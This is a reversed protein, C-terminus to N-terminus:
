TSESSRKEHLKASWRDNYGLAFEYVSHDYNVYITRLHFACGVLTAQFLIFNRLRIRWHADSITQTHVIGGHCLSHPQLIDDADIPHISGATPSRRIDTGRLEDLDISVPRHFQGCISGFAHHFRYPVMSSLYLFSGTAVALRGDSPKKGPASLRYDLRSLLAFRINTCLARSFRSLSSSGAPDQPYKSHSPRRDDMAHPFSGASDVFGEIRRIVQQPACNITSRVVNHDTLALDDIYSDLLVTSSLIEMQTRDITTSTSPGTFFSARRWTRYYISPQSLTSSHVIHVIQREGQVTLFCFIRGEIPTLSPQQDERQGPKIRILSSIERSKSSIIM